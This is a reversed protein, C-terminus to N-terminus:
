PNTPPQITTIAAKQKRLKRRHRRLLIFLVILGIVWLPSLVVLIIVLWQLFIVIANILTTLGAQILYGMDDWSLTSWNIERKPEVPSTIQRLRISVTSEALLNDWMSIQGKLSEIELTLQDIQALVKLSDEITEAKALLGYFTELSKEMTTLRTQADYYDKTIDSSNTNNSLIEYKDDAYAIFADLNEPEIKFVADIYVIDDSIGQAKDFEYGGLAIAKALLDAYAAKVDKAELSLQVDKIIKRLVSTVTGANTPFTSEGDASGFDADTPAGANTEVPYYGPSEDVDKGPSAMASCGALVTLLMVSVLAIMLFRKM